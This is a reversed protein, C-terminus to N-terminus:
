PGASTVPMSAQIRPAGVFEVVHDPSSEEAAMYHRADGYLMTVGSLDGAQLDRHQEDYRFSMVQGSPGPHDLGIAHGIEHVFTYRLDYVRTNGDFGVKWRQQPNLCILAQEIIRVEADSDPRYFVNAFARGIPRGQAGILIDAQAPDEAAVFRIDAVEEWIRFAAAAEAELTEQDISSRRMLDTMPVIQGCNRATAFRMSENVFAYSVTAGDGLTHTGWKVHHGSLKLLKFGAAGPHMSASAASGALLGATLWTAAALGIALRRL